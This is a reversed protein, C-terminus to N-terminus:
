KDIGSWASQDEGIPKAQSDDIYDQYSDANSLFSGLMSAYKFLSVLMAISNLVYCWIPSSVAYLLYFVVICVFFM